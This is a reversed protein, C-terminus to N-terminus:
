LLSMGGDVRLDIGTVFSSAESALFLAASGLEDPRGLRGLPIAKVVSEEFEARNEPRVGLKELIATDTPGPSLVNVRIGRAKLEIAWAKAFAGIAAKSGAYVAHGDLFKDSAISGTLIISGNNRMIQSMKQVGFFVGRTNIAFQMDYEEPSVGSSLNITNVGANAMYVDLGGLEAHLWTALQEHHAIDASDGSVGIAGHGIQLVAADLVSKRRGTVVVQAGEAAFKRAAELGIGSNGGTILAVKGALLSMANKRQMHNATRGEM